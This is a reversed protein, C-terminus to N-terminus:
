PKIFENEIMECIIHIIVIHCEQIRPTNSSPVIVSLDAVSAIKGGENGLLAATCCGMEKACEIGILVNESNGSTSIGIVLDDKVALAEIQRSFIRSFSFDNGAATIVSSDTTLAIAPLAKREKTYRVAIETAMHQSDSASGGNGMILLKNGNKLTDTAKRAINIVDDGTDKLMNVSDIHEKLSLELVTNIEKM